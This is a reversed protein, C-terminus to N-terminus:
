EEEYYEDLLDQDITEEERPPNGDYIQFERNQRYTERLTIYPDTSKDVLADEAALLRARADLARFLYLKDKVSARLYPNIDTYFDIPLAAADLTSSPGFFPLMLYPGEPLGWVALTQSFSEDYRRMGGAGAVDFIGGLGLTTNFLFRGLENFGRGPKGQLFNNLASRPTTFNSFINAFGRRVPTPTIKKYGKALPKLTYKDVTRNIAFMGRNFREFPDYPVPKSAAMQEATSACGCVLVCLCALVRVRNGPSLWTSRGASM